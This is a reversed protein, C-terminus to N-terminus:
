FNLLISRNCVSMAVHVGSAKTCADWLYTAAQIIRRLDTLLFSQALIQEDIEEEGSLSAKSHDAIDADLWPLQTPHLHVKTESDM